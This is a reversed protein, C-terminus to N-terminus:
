DVEDYGMSVFTGAGCTLKIGENVGGTACIHIGAQAAKQATYLKFFINGSASFKLTVDVNVTKSSVYVQRIRLKKGGNPNHIEQDTQAGAYDSAFCHEPTHTQVDQYGEDTVTGINTGDTIKSSAKLKSYDTQVVSVDSSITRDKEDQVVTANLLSADPQESYRGLTYTNWENRVSM